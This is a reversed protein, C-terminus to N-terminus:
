IGVLHCDVAQVCYLSCYVAGLREEAYTYFNRVNMVVKENLMLIRVLEVHLEPTHKDRLNKISSFALHKSHNEKEQM